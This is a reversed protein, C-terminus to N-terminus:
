QTRGAKPFHEPHGYLMIDLDPCKQIFHCSCVPVTAPLATYVASGSCRSLTVRAKAAIKVRYIHNMGVLPCFCTERSVLPSLDGARRDSM